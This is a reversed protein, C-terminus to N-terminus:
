ATPPHSEARIREYCECSFGELGKRDLMKIRGRSYEIFGKAQLNGAAITVSTRNSGLMISAFEQTIAMIDGSARDHCVLLWKALRQEATHLRNCLATQGMQAMMGRTFSLAAKQFAGGRDFEQKITVAKIRFGEGPLQVMQRNLAARGDELVGEIGSIGERGIVCVEANQGSPTTTVVSIMGRTPFYMYEIADDQEFLIKGHVLEVKELHSNLREQDPPPLSAIIINQTLDKPSSMPNEQVPQM